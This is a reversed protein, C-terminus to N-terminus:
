DERLRYLEETLTRSGLSKDLLKRVEEMPMDYRAFRSHLKAVYQKIAASRPGYVSLALLKEVTGQEARMDGESCLM